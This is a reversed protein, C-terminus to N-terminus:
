GNSNAYSFEPTLIFPHGAEVGVMLSLQSSEEEIAMAMWEDAISVYMLYAKQCKWLFRLTSDYFHEGPICTQEIPTWHNYKRIVQMLKAHTVSRDQDPVAHDCFDKRDENADMLVVDEITELQDFPLFFQEWKIKYHPPLMPEEETTNPNGEFRSEEDDGKSKKAMKSPEAKITRKKLDEKLEESKEESVKREPALYEIGVLQCINQVM